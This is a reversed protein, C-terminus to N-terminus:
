PKANKELIHKYHGHDGNFCQECFNDSDDDVEMEDEAGGNFTNGGGGRSGDGGRNTGGGADGDGRNAGLRGNGFEVSVIYNRDFVGCGDDGCGDVYTSSAGGGVASGYLDNSGGLGGGFLGGGFSNSTNNEIKIRKRMQPNGEIETQDKDTFKRKSGTTTASTTTEDLTTDNEATAATATTEESATAIIKAVAATDTTTTTAITTIDSSTTPPLPTGPRRNEETATMDGEEGQNVTESCGDMGPGDMGPGDGQGERGGDM